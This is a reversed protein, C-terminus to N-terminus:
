RRGPLLFALPPHAAPSTDVGRTFFGAVGGGHWDGGKYFRATEHPARGTHKPKQVWLVDAANEQADGETSPHLMSASSAVPSAGRIAGTRVPPRGPTAHFNENENEAISVITSWVPLFEHGRAIVEGFGCLFSEGNARRMEARIWLAHLKCRTRM